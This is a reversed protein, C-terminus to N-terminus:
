SIIIGSHQCLPMWEVDIKVMARSFGGDVMTKVIQEDIEGVIAEDFGINYIM